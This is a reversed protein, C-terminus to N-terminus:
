VFFGELHFSYKTKKVFLLLSTSTYGLENLKKTVNLQLFQNSEDVVLKPAPLEM